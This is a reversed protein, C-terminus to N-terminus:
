ALAQQRYATMIPQRMSGGTAPDGQRRRHKEIIRSRREANRLPRWPLPEVLVCHEGRAVCSSRRLRKGRGLAQTDSRM